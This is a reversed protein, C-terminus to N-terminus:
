ALRRFSIIFESNGPVIINNPDTINLTTGSSYFQIWAEYRIPIQNNFENGDFNKIFDFKYLEGNGAQTISLQPWTAYVRSNWWADNGDIQLLFEPVVLKQASSFNRSTSRYQDTKIAISSNIKIPQILTRYNITTGATTSASLKLITFAIEEDLEFHAFTDKNNLHRNINNNNNAVNLAAPIKVKFVPINHTSDSLNEITETNFNNIGITATTEIDKLTMISDPFMADREVPIQVDEYFIHAM